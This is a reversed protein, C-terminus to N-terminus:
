GGRGQAEYQAHWATILSALRRTTASDLRLRELRRLCTDIATPAYRISAGPTSAAIACAADIDSVTLLLRGPILGDRAASIAADRLRVLAPLMDRRHTAGLDANAIAIAIADFDFLLDGTQRERAAHAPADSLPPGCHIVIATDYRGIKADRTANEHATKRAHCDACLPQLNQPDLLAGGQTIPVIHDVCVAPTVRGVALCLRCLPETNRTITSVQDWQKPRKRAGVRPPQRPM